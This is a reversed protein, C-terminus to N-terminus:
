NPKRADPRARWSSPPSAAPASGTPASEGASTTIERAIRQEPARTKVVVYVLPADGVPQVAHPVGAPIRVLDGPGVALARASDLQGGAFEKPNRAIAGTLRGGYYVAGQGSQFVFVDDWDVHLEPQSSTTRRNLIFKARGDMSGEFTLGRADADMRELAVRLDAARLIDVPGRDRFGIPPGMPSRRPVARDDAEAGPALLSPGVLFTLGGAVFVLPLVLARWRPRREAHWARMPLPRSM